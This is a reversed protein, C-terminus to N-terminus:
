CMEQKKLVQLSLFEYGRANAHIDTDYATNPRYESFNQVAAAGGGVYIVKMYKLDYEREALELELLYVQRRITDRILNTYIKPLLSPQKRIVKLIEGESINKGYQVQLDAQIQKIWKVMAKEITVSKSEVQIGDRLYVVDTTKSGIDVVLYDGKMNSLRPAVASYCQPYVLVQKLEIDYGTREYEYKMVAKENYYEALNKKERGFDSFPLGVALIIEAKQVEEAKLEKAIAAMALLRAKEDSVKDETIAARGECVKYYKRGYKLSHEKVSPEAKGMCYVGNEFLNGATKGFQYGDDFGIVYMGNGLKVMKGEQKKSYRGAATLSRICENERRCMRESETDIVTKEREFM